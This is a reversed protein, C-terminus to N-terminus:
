DDRRRRILHVLDKSMEVWTEQEAPTLEEHARALLIQAGDYQAVVGMGIEDLVLDRVYEWPQGIAKALAKLQPTTFPMRGPAVGQEVYKQLGSRSVSSDEDIRTKAAIQEYSMGQDRAANILDRLRVPQSVGSM